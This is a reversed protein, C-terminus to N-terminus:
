LEADLQMTRVTIEHVGEQRRHGVLALALRDHRLRDLLIRVVHRGEHGPRGLRVHHVALGQAEPHDQEQDDQRPQEVVHLLLDPGIDAALDVAELRATLGQDRSQARFTLRGDNM